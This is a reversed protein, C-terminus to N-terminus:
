LLYCIVAYCSSGICKSTLNRSTLAESKTLKWKQVNVPIDVIGGDPLLM